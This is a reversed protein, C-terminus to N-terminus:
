YRLPLFTLPFSCHTVAFDDFILTINRVGAAALRRELEVGLFM